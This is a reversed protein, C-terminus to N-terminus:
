QGKIQIDQINKGAYKHVEGQDVALLIRSVKTLEIANEHLRYFERHVSIDHGLHRALWDYENETMNFLQCVTAVYKRLKTGTIADPNALFIEGCIKKLCDHGRLFRRSGNSRSFVYRNEFAIGCEDRHRILIDVCEKVASPLIIPVKRGRKGEVEVLSMSESLKREVPTLSNKIEETNEDWTPRSIYDSLKMKSAEGSRRKNFLIIRALCLTALRTWKQNNRKENEVELKYKIIEDDIYKSLHVLDDTIPLLQTANFKRRHLTSLANSSIRINWEMDILDNLSLLSKNKKMNGARLASGRQIAICKKLAFGIKLALSPTHFEPRVISDSSIPNMTIKKTAQVIIDFKDPTLYDSLSRSNHQDLGNLALQLRALQRMSQRIYDSQTSAYKEFQMAGFKLILVDNKCINGIEDSRLNSIISNNYEQSFGFGFIDSIIANSEAIVHKAKTSNNNCQKEKCNYKIHHWIHKKLMFGLCNPCPGYDSYTVLKSENETPRRVLILEGCRSSLVNCNYYFDGVKIIEAFGKKRQISKKPYILYKAIDPEKDHVTDFHRAMNIIKKNCYYCIHFKNRIRKGHRKSAPIIDIDKRFYNKQTVYKREEESLESESSNRKFNFNDNMRKSNSDGNKTVNSILKEPSESLIKENENSTNNENKNKEFDLSIKESFSGLIVENNTETNGNEYNNLVTLIDTKRRKSSLNNIKVDQLIKVKRNESLIDGKKYHNRKKKRSSSTNIGDSSSTDSPM